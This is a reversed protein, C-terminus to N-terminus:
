RGGEGDSQLRPAAPDSPGSSPSLLFCRGSHRDERDSGGVAVLTPRHRRCHDMVSDCRPHFSCGEPLSGAEPVRGPIGDFSARRGDLRPVAALLARTYPHAPARFLDEAPAEEVVEGAYMVVVRDCSQAVLGLDHTILLVTLGLTRRLELLLEIVQAQVTVDLATTPEDALLLDPASALAMAIMARQLQGGSLQHPYSKLRREPDPMAVQELLRRAAHSRERRSTGKGNSLSEEIQRGVTLVPNLASMPEQFIMALRRGRIERRQRRSLALLDGTGALHVQGSLVRAGPPLLGLIALATLTKGCGSEGVLAVIEGRRIEFGAGRLVGAGRLEGADDGFGVSLGAVELLVEGTAPPSPASGADITAPHL